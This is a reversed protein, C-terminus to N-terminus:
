KKPLVVLDVLNHSHPLIEPESAVFAYRGVGRTRASSRLANVLEVENVKPRM